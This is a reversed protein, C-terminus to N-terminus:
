PRPRHLHAICGTELACHPAPQRVTCNPVPVLLAAETRYLKQVSDSYLAPATVVTQANIPAARPACDVVYASCCWASMTLLLRTSLEESHMPQQVSRNTAMCHLHLQQVVTRTQHCRSWLYPVTDFRVLDLM